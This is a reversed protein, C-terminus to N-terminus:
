DIQVSFLARRAGKVIVLKYLEYTFDHRLPNSLARTVLEHLPLAFSIASVPPLSISLSGARM